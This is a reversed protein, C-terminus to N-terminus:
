KKRWLFAIICLSILAYFLYFGSAEPNKVTVTEVVNNEQEVFSNNQVVIIKSTNVYGEKSANLIYKGSKNIICNISGTENSTGIVIGNLTIQVDQVLSSLSKIFIPFEKGPIINKPVDLHMLEDYGNFKVVLVEYNEDYILLRSGDPSWSDFYFNLNDKPSIEISGNGDSKVICVKYDDDTNTVTINTFGVYSSSPDWSHFESLEIDIKNTGDSNIIGSSFSIKHGNPSWSTGLFTNENEDAYLLKQNRGNEDAIYLNNSSLDGDNYVKKTFLIKGEPSIALYDGSTITEIKTAKGGNNDISFCTCNTNNYNSYYLKSNDSSWGVLRDVNPEIKKLNTGDRNIIWLTNDSIFSIKNGKHDWMPDIVSKGISKNTLQNQIDGNQDIRYLQNDIVVIADSGDPNWSFDRQYPIKSANEWISDLTSFNTGVARLFTGDSDSIVYFDTILHIGM